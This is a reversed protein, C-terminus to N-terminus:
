SSSEFPIDFEVKAYDQLKALDSMLKQMDKGGGVIYNSIFGELDDGSTSAIEYILKQLDEKGGGVYLGKSDGKAKRAPFIYQIDHRANKGWFELAIWASFSM